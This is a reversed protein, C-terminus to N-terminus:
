EQSSRTTAPGAAIWALVLPWVRGRRLNYDALLENWSQKAVTRGFSFEFAVTLALWAGGIKLASDRDPIPWRRQLEAFYAAFAAIAIVSSLQHARIETLSRGYLKERAIGNSIGIVPGGLWATLWPKWPVQKLVSHREFAKM